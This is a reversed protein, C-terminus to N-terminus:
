FILSDGDAVGPRLVPPKTLSREGRVRRLGDLLRKDDTLFPARGANAASARHGVGDPEISM